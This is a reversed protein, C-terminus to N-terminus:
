TLFTRGICVKMKIGKLLEKCNSLLTLNYYKERLGARGLTPWAVFPRLNLDQDPCMCTNHTPPKERKRRGHKAYYQARMQPMISLVSFYPNGKM